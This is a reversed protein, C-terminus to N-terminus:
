QDVKIGTRKVFESWKRMDGQVLARFQETTMAGPTAGIDLMRKRLAPERLAQNVVEAIRAVVDPPTGAPALLGSWGDVEFGPLGSEAVTPLNPSMSFRKASTVALARLRGSQMWSIADSYNAFTLQVEGSAAATVAPAGGNYPIHVMDISAMHKFIEGAFRTFGGAGAFSLEGPKAKALAILEKVNKVPLTPNVMLVLPNTNILTIPAFDNFGDYNVKYIYQNLTQPAALGLLLTYGDPKSKAVYDTALSGSAGPKNEVIVPQHLAEQLPSQILRAVIDAIGGPAYPVIIRIPKSPWAQASAAHGLLCGAVALCAAVLRRTLPNHM